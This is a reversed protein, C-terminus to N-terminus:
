KRSKAKKVVPLDKEAKRKQGQNSAVVSAKVIINIPAKHKTSKCGKFDGQKGCCSWLFGEAM